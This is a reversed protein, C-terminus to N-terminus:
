KQQAERERREAEEMERIQEEEFVVRVTLETEGAPLGPFTTTTAKAEVAPRLASPDRIGFRTKELWIAAPVANRGNGCAINLLNNAVKARVKANADELDDVFAKKFTDMAVPKGTRPNLVLRRVMEYTMM